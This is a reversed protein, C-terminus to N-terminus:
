LLEELSFTIRMTYQYYSKDWLFNRVFRFLRWKHNLFWQGVWLILLIPKLMVKISLFPLKTALWTFLRCFNAVNRMNWYICTHLVLLFSFKHLIIEVSYALDPFKLYYLAKSRPQWYQTWRPRWRWNEYAAYQPSYLHGMCTALWDLRYIPKSSNSNM